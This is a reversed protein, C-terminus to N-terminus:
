SGTACQTQPAPRIRVHCRAREVKGPARHHMDVRADGCEHRREDEPLTLTEMLMNRRRVVQRKGDQSGADEPESPEPKVGPLASPAAPQGRASKDGGVGGRGRGAERPRDSSQNKLLCGVISPM